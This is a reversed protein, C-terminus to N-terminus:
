GGSELLETVEEKLGNIHNKLIAWIVTEDLNDYAHIIRNRLGTLQRVQLLPTAEGQKQYQGAAEGIIGLQREVASQTKLDALYDDFTNVDKTFLEIHEIAKKIDSLYKKAQETM